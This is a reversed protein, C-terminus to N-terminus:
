FSGEAARDIGQSLILDEHLEMWVDHYSNCMVGTFMNTQGGHLRGLAAELRPSYNGLRPLHVAMADVLPRARGDLDDLRAIVAGDYTENTHDNPQGDLLQWDGCLAKFEDNIGLFSHYDASLKDGIAAQAVDDKLAAAHAERGGATLQWLGRAERFAALERALLDQLHGDVEAQPLGAVEAVTEAKAFGKIRLAHFTRFEPASEYAM